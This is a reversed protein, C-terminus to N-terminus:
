SAVVERDGIRYTGAVDAVYLGGSVTHVSGDPREVQAGEDVEFTEGVKRKAATM